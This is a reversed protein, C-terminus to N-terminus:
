LDGGHVISNCIGNAYNGCRDTCKIYYTASDNLSITHVLNDGGMITTQRSNFDDCKYDVFFGKVFRCTAPENTIAVLSNHNNYVRTVLPPITDLSINFRATVNAENDVFDRCLIDIEKYGAMMSGFPQEHSTKFTSLFNIYTGNVFKYKCQAVGNVGGSTTARLNVTIPESGTWITENNPSLSSIILKDSKKLNVKYSEANVNRASENVVEYWPQDKCRVFLNTENGPMSINTFCIFGKFTAQTINNYCNFANSMSEYTSEANSWRCTAPENVFLTLNRYNDGFKVYDHDPYKETISPPTLDRGPKICFNIAYDVDNKNGSADRCRIYFSFDARRTPDFGYLGLSEVSPIVVDSVSHNVLYYPDAFYATMSDFDTRNESLRCQAPENHKIGFSIKTFGAICGDADPGKIKYGLNSVNEYSYGEPLIGELPDITPASADSPNLAICDEKSTGENIFNCRLGLSNCRYKSCPRKPDKMCDGCKAGGSPAEWPDCTFKVKVIKVKGLGLVQTLVIAVVILVVGIVLLPMMLPAFAALGPITALAGTTGAATAAVMAGTVGAATMSASIAAAATIALSGAAMMVTSATSYSTDTTAEPSEPDGYNATYAKAAYEVNDDGTTGGLEAPNQNPQDNAYQGYTSVVNIEPAGDVTYGSSGADGKINVKGGCDGLSTCLDNMTQTFIAEECECNTQCVWGSLKKKYVVQCTQTAYSCFSSSSSSSSSSTAELEFGAPYKPVCRDFKFEDLAISKLMCDNINTCKTSQGESEGNISMCEYWRNIRCTAMKFNVGDIKNVSQMCIENRYDACPDTTVIGDRCVRKFHRSGVVAIGEGIKGDYLCWSEGNKVPLGKDDKCNLDHCINDGYVVPNNEKAKCMSGLLYNCNGCSVSNMSGGGAGCSDKKEVINDWYALDDKKASDYINARNGCSDMYYVEDKGDACTTKTTRECNTGLQRNTCLKQSSFNGMKLCNARTTFKCSKINDKAFVCAGYEQNTVSQLCSLENKINKNLTALTGTINGKRICATETTFSSFLGSGWTCCGKVCEANNGFADDYWRGGQEECSQRPSGPQCVGETPDMCTGIKCQAVNIRSAPICKGPECVGPCDSSSYEQCIKGDLSKLCTSVSATSSSASASVIGKGFIYNVIRSYFSIFAFNENNENDKNNGYAENVVYSFAVIATIM